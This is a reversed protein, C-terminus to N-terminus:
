GSGIMAFQFDQPTLKDKGSGAPDKVHQGPNKM